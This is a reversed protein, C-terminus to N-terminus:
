CIAVSLPPIYTLRFGYTRVGYHYFSSDDAFTCVVTTQM